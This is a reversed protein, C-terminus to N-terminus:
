PREVPSTDRMAELFQRALVRYDHHALVYERGRQGMALRERVDTRMLQIAAGALREPSEPEISIGCGSEAVLDNGAEIAMIVPRAAMMYDMLKNPSIGFRFIPTKKLGIYLADMADLVGPIAPKPVPHLFTVNRLELTRARAELIQKEPGQGVLVFHVPCGAMLRAADLVTDLANAVGHAGAYGIVFQGRSRLDRLVRGHQKALPAGATSWEATDIGNPVYRFKAPDMGHAVMHELANPLMSVVRDAQAYAFDEARQMLLVFPHRPSMGGLEIPSLPWLDHVEFILTANALRALRRAAYVDLPYTSSAIVVDPRLASAMKRGQKYLARVFAFMNAARRAGNGEYPPTRLWWYPVGDVTEEVLASNVVPQVSRVHSESAAVVAVSHGMRMWERAMLYPRFEMGHRLSGAYHNILAINMRLEVVGQWLLSPV